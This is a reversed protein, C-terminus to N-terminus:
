LHMRSEIEAGASMLLEALLFPLEEENDSVVLHCLSLSPQSETKDLSLNKLKWKLQSWPSLNKIREWIFHLYSCNKHRCDYFLVCLFSYYPLTQRITQSQVQEDCPAPSTRCFYASNEM